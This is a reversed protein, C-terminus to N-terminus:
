FHVLFLTSYLCRKMNLLRYMESMLNSLQAFLNPLVTYLNSIDIQKERVFPVSDKNLLKYIILYSGGGGKRFGLNRWWMWLMWDNSGMGIQKALTM